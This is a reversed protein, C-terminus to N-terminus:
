CPATVEDETAAHIRSTLVYIVIVAPEDVGEVSDTAAAPLDADCSAVMGM